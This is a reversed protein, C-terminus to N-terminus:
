ENGEDVRADDVELPICLHNNIKKAYPDYSTIVEFDPWSEKIADRLEIESEIWGKRCGCRGQKFINVACKDCKVRKTVIYQTETM